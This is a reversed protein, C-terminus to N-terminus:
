FEKLIISQRVQSNHTFQEKKHIEGLIWPALLKRRKACLERM